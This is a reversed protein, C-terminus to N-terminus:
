SGAGFLFPSQLGRQLRQFNSTVTGSFHFLSEAESLDSRHQPAYVTSELLTIKLLALDRNPMPECLRVLLRKLRSHRWTLDLNSV